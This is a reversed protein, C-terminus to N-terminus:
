HKTSSEGQKNNRVFKSYSKKLQDKLNHSNDNNTNEYITAPIVFSQYYSRDGM